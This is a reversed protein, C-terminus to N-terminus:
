GSLYEGCNTYVRLKWTANFIEADGTTEQV